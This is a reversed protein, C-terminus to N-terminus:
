EVSSKKTFNWGPSAGHSAVPLIEERVTASAAVTTSLIRAYSEGDTRSPQFVLISNIPSSEQVGSRSSPVSCLPSASSSAM